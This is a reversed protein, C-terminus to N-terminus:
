TVYHPKKNKARYHPKENAVRYHPKKNTARYCLTNTPNSQTASSCLKVLSFRDGVDFSGDPEALWQRWPIGISISSGRKRKTDLSM